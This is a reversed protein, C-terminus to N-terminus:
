KGGRTQSLIRQGIERQKEIIEPYHSSGYSGGQRDEYFYEYFYWALGILDYEQFLEYDWEMQYTAPWKEPDNVPGSGKSAFLVPRSGAKEKIISLGRGISEKYWKKADESSDGHTSKYIDTSILDINDPIDPFYGRAREVESPNLFNVYMPYAPFIEKVGQVLDRLYEETYNKKIKYPEDVVYIALIVDKYKDIRNKIRRLEAEDFTWDHLGEEVVRKDLKLLVKM